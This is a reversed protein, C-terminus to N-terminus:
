GLRSRRIFQDVAVMMVLASVVVLVDVVRVNYDGLEFLERNEFMRNFPQVIRAGGVYENLDDDLGFWAAMKDRLGMAEALVFSAGIASILVALKPAGRKLLPRYAVREVFLAVAGSALM